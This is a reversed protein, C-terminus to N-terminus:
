AFLFGDDSVDNVAEIEQPIVDEATVFRRIAIDDADEHLRCFLAQLPCLLLNLFHGLFLCEIIIVQVFKSAM